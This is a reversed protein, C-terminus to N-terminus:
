KKVRGFTLDCALDPLLNAATTGTDPQVVSPAGFDNPGLGPADDVVFLRRTRVKFPQSLAVCRSTMSIASFELPSPKEAGALHLLGNTFFSVDDAAPAASVGLAIATTILTEGESM